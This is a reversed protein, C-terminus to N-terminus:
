APDVESTQTKGSFFFRRAGSWRSVAFLFVAFTAAMTLAASGIGWAVPWAQGGADAGREVAKWMLQAPIWLVAFLAFSSLFRALVPRRDGGPVLDRGRLVVGFILAMLVPWVWVFTWDEPAFAPTPISM